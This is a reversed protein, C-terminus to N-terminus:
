QTNLALFGHSLQGILLQVIMHIVIFLYTGGLVVLRSWRDRGVQSEGKNITIKTAILNSAM